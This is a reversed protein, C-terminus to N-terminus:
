YSIRCCGQAPAGTSGMGLLVAEYDYSVDSMGDSCAETYRVILSLSYATDTSELYYAWLDSRGIGPVFRPPNLKIPSELEPSSYNANKEEITVGWFPETGVCHLTDPIQFLINTPVLYDANVWGVIGEYAVERWETGDVDLSIGTVVVDTADHPITGIIESSGVDLTQDINARINLADQAAVGSVSHPQSSAPTAYLSILFAITVALKAVRGHRTVTSSHWDKRIQM